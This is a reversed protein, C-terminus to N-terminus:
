LLNLILPAPFLLSFKVQANKKKKVIPFGRQREQSTKELLDRHSTSM